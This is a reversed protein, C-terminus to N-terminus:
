RRIMLRRRQSMAPIIAMPNDAPARFMQSVTGTNSAWAVTCISM